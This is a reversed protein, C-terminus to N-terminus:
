QSSRPALRFNSHAPVAKGADKARQENVQYLRKAAANEPKSLWRFFAEALQRPQRLKGSDLMEQLREPHLLFCMDRDHGRRGCEKVPCTPVPRSKTQKSSPKHGKGKAELALLVSAGCGANSPACDDFGSCLAEEDFPLEHGAAAFIPLSQSLAPNVPRAAKAMSALFARVREFPLPATASVGDSRVEKEADM